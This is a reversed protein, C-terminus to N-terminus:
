SLGVLHSEVLEDDGYHQTPRGDKRQIVPVGETSPDADFCAVWAYFQM